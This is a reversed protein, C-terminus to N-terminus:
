HKSQVKRKKGAVFVGAGSLVLMFMMMDASTTDATNPTTDATNPTKDAPKVANSQEGQPKKPTNNKRPVIFTTEVFRGDKYLFRVTYQGASLTDMYKAKLNLVTSGSGLTSLTYESADLLEGSRYIGFLNELKGSCIMQMDHGAVYSTGAKEIRLIVNQADMIHWGAVGNKETRISKGSQVAEAPILIDITDYYGREPIGGIHVGLRKDGESVDNSVTIKVGAPKKTFWSSIDTGAKMAHFTDNNLLIALYDDSIEENAYGYIIVGTIAASPIRVEEYTNGSVEINVDGTIDVVDFGYSFDSKRYLNSLKGKEVTVVPAEKFVMGSNATINGSFGDGAPIDSSKSLTVKANKLQNTDVTVHYTPTKVAEGSVTVTVDGVINTIKYYYYMSSQSDFEVDANTANVVPKQIFNAGADARVTLRISEGKKIYSTRNLEAIANQLDKADIKATYTHVSVDITTNPNEVQLENGSKLYKGPIIFQLVGQSATSPTGKLVISVKTDGDSVKGEIEASLWSSEFIWDSADTKDAIEKFTDGTLHFTVVANSLPEGIYGKIAADEVSASASAAHINMTPVITLMLALAMFAADIKRFVKKMMIYVRESPISVM